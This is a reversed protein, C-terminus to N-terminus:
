IGTAHAHKKDWNINQSEINHMNHTCSKSPLHGGYEVVTKAKVPGTNSSLFLVLSCMM